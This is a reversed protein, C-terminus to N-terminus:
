KLCVPYVDYGDFISVGCAGDNDRETLILVVDHKSEGKINFGACYSYMGADLTTTVDKKENVFCSPTFPTLLERLICINVDNPNFYNEWTTHYICHKGFRGVALPDLTGLRDNPLFHKTDLKLERPGPRLAMASGAVM